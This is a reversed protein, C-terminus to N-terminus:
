GGLLKLGDKLPARIASSRIELKGGEAAVGAGDLEFRQADLEGPGTAGGAGEFGKWQTDRHLVLSTPKSKAGNVRVM